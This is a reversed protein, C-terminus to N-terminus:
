TRLVKLGVLILFVGPALTWPQEAAGEGPCIHEDIFNPEFLEFVPMIESMGQEHTIEPLGYETMAKKPTQAWSILLMVREANLKAELRQSGISFFSDHAEQILRNVATAKGLDSGELTLIQFRHTM